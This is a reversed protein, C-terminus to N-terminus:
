QGENVHGMGPGLIEALHDALGDRV